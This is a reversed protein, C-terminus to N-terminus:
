ETRESFQNFLLSNANESRQQPLGPLLNVLIVLNMRSRKRPPASTRVSFFFGGALSLGVELTPRFFAQDNWGLIQKLRTKL